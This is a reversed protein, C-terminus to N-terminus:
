FISSIKTTSMVEKKILNNNLTKFDEDSDDIIQQDTVSSLKNIDKTPLDDICNNKMTM